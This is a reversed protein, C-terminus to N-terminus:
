RIVEKDYVYRDNVISDPNNSLWRIVCGGGCYYWKSCRSCVESPYKRVMNRFEKVENSNWFEILKDFPISTTNLPYGMFHNCPLINFNNDFIMGSGKTIHCCTVIRKTKIMHSLMNNDLICLPISMEFVFNIDDKYIKDYVYKCLDALEFLSIPDKEDDVSPKYLQFIINNLENEKVMNWFRDFQKYDNNCLVYSLNVNVNCKKLNQYGKLMESFGCANTNKLYEEENAGKVSINVSNLGNLAAQKSFNYDSFRRGNTAMSVKIGSQLIKRIIKLIDPYISPEGGILIVKKVENNKLVNICEFVKELTM